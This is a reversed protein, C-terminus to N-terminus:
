VGGRDVGFQHDGVKFDIARLNFDIQLRVFEKTKNLIIVFAFTRKTLHVFSINLKEHLM